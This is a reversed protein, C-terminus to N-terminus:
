RKRGKSKTSKNSRLARAVQATGPMGAVKAGLEVPSIGPGRTKGAVTSIETLTEAVAGLPSKGYRIGGGIIPLIEAVEGAARLSATDLKGGPRNMEKVFATVPQPMPSKMGLVDEFLIDVLLGYGVWRAINSINKAVQPASHGKGMGAVDKTLFHYNSIVFTQFLTAARGLASRQIPAMDSRMGSGQTRLVVDDAYRASERGPRLGEVRQAHKYAGIWTAEASVMDLIKLPGFGLDAVKRLALDIRGGTTATAMDVAMDFKRTQLVSSLRMAETRKSKSLLGGIGSYMDRVGIDVVSNILSTPQILASRVNWSLTSRAINSSFKDLVKASFNSLETSKPRIGAADDLWEQIKVRANPASSEMAYVVEGRSNRFPKLLERDRAIEKGVHIHTEAKQLYAKFVRGADLDVQRLSRKAQKAYQFGTMKPHIFNNWLAAPTEVLSPNMQEWESFIRNFTFYDEVKEIPEKGAYVRAANVENWLQDYKGRIYHYMELENPTLTPAKKGMAKLIAAGNARQAIAYTGIRTMSKRSMGGDAKLLKYKADFADVEYHFATNAAKEADKMGFELRDYARPGLLKAIRYFPTLKYDGKTLPLDKLDLLARFDSMPVPPALMGNALKRQVVPTDDPIPPLESAKTVDPVSEGAIEEIANQIEKTRVEDLPEGRLFRRVHDAKANLEFQNTSGRREMIISAVEQPNYPLDADPVTPTAAKPQEVPRPQQQPQPRQPTAGAPKAVADAELQTLYPRIDAGYRLLMDKSFEAYSKGLGKSENWFAELHPKAARYNAESYPLLGIRDGGSLERLGKALESAAKALSPEGKYVVHDGSLAYGLKTVEKMAADHMRQTNSAVEKDAKAALAYKQKTTKAADILLSYKERIARNAVEIDASSKARIAEFQSKIEPSPALESAAKALSPNAKAALDPYDALVKPPVPRGTALAIEVRNKHVQRKAKDGFTSSGSWKDGWRVTTSSLPGHQQETTSIEKFEGLTMEWPEKPIAGAAPGALPTPATPSPELAPSPNVKAALDPYDKLVEPPVINGRQLAGVIEQRHSGINQYIFNRSNDVFGPVIFEPPISSKNVLSAHIDGKKGSIIKGTRSDKIAVRLDMGGSKPLSIGSEEAKKALEEGIVSIINSRANVDTATVSDESRIENTRIFESKTMEWPKKNRSPTTTTAMALSPEAPAPAQPAPPTPAAAEAMPEPPPPVGQQEALADRLLKSGEPSQRLYELATMQEDIVRARPDVAAYEEAGLEMNLAEAGVPSQRNREFTALQEEIAAARGQKEVESLASPETATAERQALDRKLAEAQMPSEPLAEDVEGRLGPYDARQKAKRAMLEEQALRERLMAAGWPSQNVREIERMGEDIAIAREAKEVESLASPDRKLAADLADFAANARTAEGTLRDVAAQAQEPTAGKYRKATQKAAAALRTAETAVRQEHGKIVTDAAQASAKAGAAEQTARAAAVKQYKTKGMAHKGAATAFMVTLALNGAARTIQAPDKTEIADVLALVQEPSNIIMDVAFLGSTARGIMSKPGLKATVGLLGINLPTSMGVVADNVAAVGGFMARQVGIPLMSFFKGGHPLDAARMSARIVADDVGGQPLQMSEPALPKMAFDKAKSLLSPGKPGPAQMAAFDEASITQGVAPTKSETPTATGSLKAFEDASITQGIQIPLAM